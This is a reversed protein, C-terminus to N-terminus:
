KPVGLMIEIGRDSAEALKSRATGNKKKWERYLWASRDWERWQPRLRRLACLVVNFKQAANLQKPKEETTTEMPKEETTTEM